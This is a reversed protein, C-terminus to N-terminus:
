TGCKIIELKLGDLVRQVRNEFETTVSFSFGDVQVILLGDCHENEVTSFFFCQQTMCDFFQQTYLRTTLTEYWEHAADNLGYSEVLLKCSHTKPIRAEVQEERSGEQNSCPTKLTM